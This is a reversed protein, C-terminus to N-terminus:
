KPTFVMVQPLHHTMGANIVCSTNKSWFHDNQLLSTTLKPCPPGAAMLFLYPALGGGVGEVGGRGGVTM